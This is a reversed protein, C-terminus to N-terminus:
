IGGKPEIGLKEAIDAPICHDNMWSIFSEHGCDVANRTQHYQTELWDRWTPYKPEPHAAAWGMVVCEFETIREDTWERPTYACLGGDLRCARCDDDYKPDNCMRRAQEMVVRFEAM